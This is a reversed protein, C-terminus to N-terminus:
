DAVRLRDFQRFAGVNEPQGEHHERPGRNQQKIKRALVANEPCHQAAASILRVYGRQPAGRRATFSIKKYLLKFRIAVLVCFLFARLWNGRWNAVRASNPGPGELGNLTAIIFLSLTDM